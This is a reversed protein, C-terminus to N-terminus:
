PHPPQNIGISRLLDENEETPILNGEKKRHDKQLAERRLREYTDPLFFLKVEHTRQPAAQQEGIRFLTIRACVAKKEDLEEPTVFFILQWKIRFGLQIIGLYLGHLVEEDIGERMLYLPPREAFMRIVSVYQDFYWNIINSDDM